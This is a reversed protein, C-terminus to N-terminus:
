EEDKPLFDRSTKFRMCYTSVIGRHLSILGNWVIETSPSKRYVSIWHLDLLTEKDTNGSLRIIKYVISFKILYNLNKLM